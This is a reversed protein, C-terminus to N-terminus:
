KKRRARVLLGVALLGAGALVLTTPEPTTVTDGSLLMPTTVLLLVASASLIKM